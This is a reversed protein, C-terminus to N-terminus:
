RVNKPVGVLREAVFSCAGYAAKYEEGRKLHKGVCREIFTAYDKEPNRQCGTTGVVVAVLVVTLYKM